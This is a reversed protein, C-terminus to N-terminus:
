ITCLADKLSTKLITRIGQIVRVRAGTTPQSATADLEWVTNWAESASMGPLTVSASTTRNIPFVRVCRPAALEVFYDTVGDANIDVEEPPDSAVTIEWFNVSITKEIIANAAAIAEERAQVNGVARLNTTSLSYATIVMLTILLLLIMSVFITM